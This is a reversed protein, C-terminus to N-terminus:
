RAPAQLRFLGVDISTIWRIEGRETILGGRQVQRASKTVAQDEAHLARLRLATAFADDAEEKSSVHPAIRQYDTAAEEIEGKAELYCAFDQALRHRM